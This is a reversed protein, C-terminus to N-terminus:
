KNQQVVCRNLIVDAGLGLEDSNYGTCAGIINISQGKQLSNTKTIYTSDMSCRISTTSSDQRLVVISGENEINKVAGSVLIIKGLYNKNASASDKEFAWALQAATLTATPQVQALNINKRNYENYAYWGGALVAVLIIFLIIRKM